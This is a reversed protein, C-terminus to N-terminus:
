SQKTQMRKANTRVLPEIGGLDVGRCTHVHDPLAVPYVSIVCSHPLRNVLRHLPCTDNWPRHVTRVDPRETSQDFGAGEEAQPRVRTSAITASLPFRPCPSPLESYGSAIFLCPSGNVSPDCTHFVHPTNVLVLKWFRMYLSHSPINSLTFAVTYFYIM